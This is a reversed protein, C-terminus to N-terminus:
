VYLRYVHIYMYIYIYVYVHCTTINIHVICAVRQFAHACTCTSWVNIHVTHVNVKVHISSINCMVQKNSVTYVAASRDLQECLLCM